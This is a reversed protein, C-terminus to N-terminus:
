QASVQDYLKMDEALDRLNQLSKKRQSRMSKGYNVVDVERMMRNGSKGNRQYPIANADLMRQVTKRSVGLIDAAKGTGILRSKGSVAMAAEMAANFAKEDLVYTKGNGQLLYPMDYSTQQIDISSISMSNAKEIDNV